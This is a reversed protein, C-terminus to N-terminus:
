RCWQGISVKWCKPNQDRGDFCHGWDGGSWGQACSTGDCLRGIIVRKTYPDEWSDSPRYMIWERIVRRGM